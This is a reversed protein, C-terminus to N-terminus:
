ASDPLPECFDYNSLGGTEIQVTIRDTNENVKVQARPLDERKRRPRKLLAHLRNM